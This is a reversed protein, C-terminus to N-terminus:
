MLEKKFDMLADYNVSTNFENNYFKKSKLLETRFKYNEHMNELIITKDLLGEIIFFM